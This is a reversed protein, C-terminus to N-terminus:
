LLVDRLMSVSRVKEEEQGQGHDGKGSGEVADGVKAVRRSSQVDEEDNGLCADYLQAELQGVRVLFAAGFRPFCRM